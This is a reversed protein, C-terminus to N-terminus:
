FKFEVRPPLRGMPLVAYRSKAYHCEVYEKFLAVSLMAVCLM